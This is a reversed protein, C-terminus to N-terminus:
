GRLGAHHSLRERQEPHLDLGVDPVNSRFAASHCLSSHEPSLLEVSLDFFFSGRWHLIGHKEKRSDELNKDEDLATAM